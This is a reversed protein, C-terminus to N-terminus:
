RRVMSGVVPAVCSATAIGQRVMQLSMDACEAQVSEPPGVIAVRFSDASVTYLPLDEGLALAREIGGLDHACDASEVMCQFCSRELNDRFAQLVDHCVSRQLTRRQVFTVFLGDTTRLRVVPTLQQPDREVHTLAVGAVFMLLSFVFYRM